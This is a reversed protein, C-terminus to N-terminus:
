RTRSWTHGDLQLLCCSLRSNNGNRQMAQRTNARRRNEMHLRGIQQAFRYRVIEHMVLYPAGCVCYKKRGGDVQIALYSDKHEDLAMKLVKTKKLLAQCRM